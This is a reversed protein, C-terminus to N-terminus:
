GGVCVGLEPPFGPPTQCLENAACIGDDTQTSCIALCGLEGSCVLGHGCQGAVDPNCSDGVQLSGPKACATRGDSRVVICALESSCTCEQGKPCPYAELLSCNDVPLCVPVTLDHNSLLPRPTCYTDKACSADTGRCCYQRCVGFDGDGVCALGAGCDTAALCPQGESKAGATACTRAGSVGVVCSATVTELDGPNASLGATGEWIPGSGGWDPVGGLGGLSPEGGLSVGGSAAADDGGAGGQGVEGTMPGSSLKCGSADDPVCSGAGCLPDLVEGSLGGSAGGYSIQVDVNGRSGTGGGSSRAGTGGQGGDSSSSSCHFLLNSSLLVLAGTLWPSRGRFTPFSM